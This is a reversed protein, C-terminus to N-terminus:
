TRDQSGKDFERYQITIAPQGRREIDFRVPERGVVSDFFQFFDNGRGACINCM